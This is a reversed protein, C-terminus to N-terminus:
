IARPAARAGVFRDARHHPYPDPAGPSPPWQDRFRRPFHTFAVRGPGAAWPSFEEIAARRAGLVRHSWELNAPGVRRGAMKSFPCTTLQRHDSDRRSACASLAPPRELDGLLRASRHGKRGRPRASRAALAAGARARRGAARSRRPHASSACFSMFVRGGMSPSPKSKQRLSTPRALACLCGQSSAVM